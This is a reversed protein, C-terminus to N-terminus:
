GAERPLARGLLEVPHVVEIDLGERRAQRAIHLLCGPNGATVVRAGTDRIRGLKRRGLTDAMDPHVLNYVGASGCCLDAEGLEILTLGPIRRLLTRPATKVKQAHALHCADHYTVTVPLDRLPLEADVLVESVDRVQRSFQAAEAGPLWHGYEKMASGCGAANTVVIDLDGAFATMLARGMRRFEPLRGAHLHLAGCCGQDRPVVVDWGAAALLRVTQANVQPFFHRQVCGILLGARGRRKGRAPTLAPLPAGTGMPLSPLLAEMAALKRFPALLGLSRAAWQLGSWQYLRLAQAMTALRSPRSVADLM